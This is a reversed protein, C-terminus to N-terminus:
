PAGPNSKPLYKRCPEWWTPQRIIGRCRAIIQEALRVHQPSTTGMRAAEEMLRITVVCLNRAMDDQTGAVSRCKQTLAKVTELNKKETDPALQKVADTWERVTELSVNPLDDAAIVRLEELIEECPELAGALEPQKKREAQLLDQLDAAFQDFQFVRERILRIFTAIDDAYPRVEAWPRADPEGAFCGEIKYTMACVANRHELLTLEKTGEFDLLRAAADKGLARQMVGVPSIQGGDDYTDLYYILLDGVPPFKKEFHVMTKEGDFWVPYYFWGRICRGWLKQREALFYFPFDYGDSDIFFRGVWRADFPRQWAIATDTELYEKRLPEAHWINPDEIFSVFVPEGATDLEISEVRRTNTKEAVHVRASQDGPPWVATLMGSGGEQLGVVMSLSPLYSPKGASLTEPDFLLDTGVLSPVLAYRLATRITVTRGPPQRIELIGDKSLGVIQRLGEQRDGIEMAMGHRQDAVIRAQPPNSVSNLLIEGQRTLRGDRRTRFALVGPDATCSVVVTETELVAFSSVQVPLQALSLTNSSADNPSASDGSLPERLVRITVGDHSLVTEDAAHVSRSAGLMLLIFLALFPTPICRYDLRM